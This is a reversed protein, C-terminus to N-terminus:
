VDANQMQAKIRRVREDYVEMDVQMAFALDRATTELFDIEKNAVAQEILMIAFRLQAEYAPESVMSVSPKRKSKYLRFREIKCEHCLGYRMGQYVEFEIGCQRCRKITGHSCAPCYKQTSPNPTEFEQGCLRCTTLPYINAKLEATAIILETDSLESLNMKVDGVIAVTAIHRVYNPYNRM